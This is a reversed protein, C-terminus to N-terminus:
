AAKALEAGLRATARAERMRRAREASALRLERSLRRIDLLAADWDRFDAQRDLWIARRRKDCIHSEVRALVAIAKPDDRKTHKM